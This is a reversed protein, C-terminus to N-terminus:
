EALTWYRITFEAEPFAAGCDSRFCSAIVLDGGEPSPFHGQFEIGDPPIFAIEDRFSGDDDHDYIKGTLKIDYLIGDVTPATLNETIETPSPGPTATPEEPESSGCAAVLAILALAAVAAIVRMTWASGRSNVEFNAVARM